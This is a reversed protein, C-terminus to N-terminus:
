LSSIELVTQQQFTSSVKGLNLCICKKTHGGFGLVSNEMMTERPNIVLTRDLIGGSITKIAIILNV